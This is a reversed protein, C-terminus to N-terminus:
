KHRVGVPASRQEQGGAHWRWCGGQAQLALPEETQSSNTMVSQSVQAHPLTLTFLLKPCQIDRYWSPPDRYDVLHRTFDVGKENLMLLATQCLIGAAHRVVTDRNFGIEKAESGAFPSRCTWRIRSM